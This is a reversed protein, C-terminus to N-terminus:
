CANLSGRRCVCTMDAGDVNEDVFTLVLETGLPEPEITGMFVKTPLRSEVLLEWNSKDLYIALRIIDNLMELVNFM